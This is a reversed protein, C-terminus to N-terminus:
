KYYFDKLGNYLKKKASSFLRKVKSVNMGVSLGIQKFSFDFDQKAVWVMREEETLLKVLAKEYHEQVDADMMTGKVDNDTTLVDSVFHGDDFEKDLSITKLAPDRFSINSVESIYKQIGHQVTIKLYQYFTGHNKDFNKVAEYFYSTGVDIFEDIGIGSFWYTTHADIAFARLYKWYRKSLLIFANEDGEQAKQILELETPQFVNQM